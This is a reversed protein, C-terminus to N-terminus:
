RCVSAPTSYVERMIPKSQTVGNLTYAFTGTTADTFTFTGNGVETAVVNAPDFTASSFAPGTTRYLKGAFTNAATKEGRAM